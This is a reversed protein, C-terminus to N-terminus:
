STMIRNRAAHLEDITVLVEEEIRGNLGMDVIEM